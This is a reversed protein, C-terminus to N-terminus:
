SPATVSFFRFRTGESTNGFFLYAKGRAFLGPYQSLKFMHEANSQPMSLTVLDDRRVIRFQTLVGPTIDGIRHLEALYPYTQKLPQRVGVAADVRRMGEVNHIRFLISNTPENNYADNALAEGFGVYVLDEHSEPIDLAVDFRFNRSLYDGSVTRVMPRDSGNRDGSISYSRVLGDPTLVYKDFPIVLRPSVPGNLEDSIDVPEPDRACSSSSAVVFALGLSLLPLKFLPLRRIKAFRSFIDLKPVFAGIFSSYLIGLLASFSTLVAL